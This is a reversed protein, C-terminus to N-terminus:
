VGLEFHFVFCGGECGGELDPSQRLRSLCVGFGCPFKQFLDCCGMTVGRFFEEPGSLTPDVLTESEQLCRPPADPSFTTGTRRKSWCIWHHMDRGGVSSVGSFKNEELINPDTRRRPNSAAGAAVVARKRVTDRDQILQPTKSKAWGGM